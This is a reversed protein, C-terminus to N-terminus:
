FLDAATEQEDNAHKRRAISANLRDAVSEAENASPLMLKLYSYGGELVVHLEAGVTFYGVIQRGVSDKAKTMVQRVQEAAFLM